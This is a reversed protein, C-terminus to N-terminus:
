VLSGSAARSWRREREEAHEPGHQGCWRKGFRLDVQALTLQDRAVRRPCAADPLAPLYRPSGGDGTRGPTQHARALLAYVGSATSELCGRSRPPRDHWRSAVAWACAASCSRPCATRAVRYRPCSKAPAASPLAVIEVAHEFFRDSGVTSLPPQDSLIVPITLVGSSSDYSSTTAREVSCFNVVSLQMEFSSSMDGARGRSGPERELRQEVLRAYLLSRDIELQFGRVVVFREREVATEVGVCDNHGTHVAGRQAVVVPGGAGMTQWM